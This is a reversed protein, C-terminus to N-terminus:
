QPTHLLLLLGRRILIGLLEGSGISLDGFAWAYTAISGDPDSSGTANFILPFGVSGRYPGGADAVPPLNGPGIIAKTAFQDTAGDRLTIFFATRGSQRSITPEKGVNNIKGLHFCSV